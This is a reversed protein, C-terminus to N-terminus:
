ARGAAVCPWCARAYRADRCLMVRCARAAGCASCVHRHALEDCPPPPAAPLPSGEASRDGAGPPPVIRVEALPGPGLTRGTVREATARIRGHDDRRRRQEQCCDRFAVLAAALAERTHAADAELAAEILRAAGVRASSLFADAPAGRVRDAQDLALCAAECAALPGGADAIHQAIAGVDDMALLALPELAARTQSGMADPTLGAPSAETTRRAAPETM